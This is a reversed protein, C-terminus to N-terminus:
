NVWMTEKGLATAVDAIQGLHYAEHFHFYAISEGMSNEGFGSYQSMDELTLVELSRILRTQSENYDALLHDFKLVGASEATIPLSGNRYRARVEDSWIPEQNVRQLAVTRSSILHGLLWNISNPLNEPQLLSEEHTLDGIQRNLLTHNLTFMKILAQPQIM